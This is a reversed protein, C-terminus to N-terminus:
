IFHLINFHYIALFMQVTIYKVKYQINKFYLFYAHLHYFYSRYSTEHATWMMLCNKCYFILFFYIYLKKHTILANFSFHWQMLNETQTLICWVM